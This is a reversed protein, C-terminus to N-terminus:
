TTISVEAAPRCFWTPAMTSSSGLAATPCNTALDTSTPTIWGSPCGSSPTTGPSRPRSGKVQPSLLLDQYWTMGLATSHSCSVRPYDGIPMSSLCDKLVELATEMVSSATVCDEYGDSSVLSGRIWRSVSKGSAEETLTEVPSCSVSLAHGAVPASPESGEVTKYSLQRCISTKVLGSVLKSIDEKEEASGRKAKSKGKGFLSKAVKTLLSRAASPPHLDPVMVCSSPPLREPTYGKTFFEHETIQDLTLREAPARKLIGMIMQKAAASLCAPLTYKVQKICRYTEKLDATEFPPTGCLLTYWKGLKLDRHIIGRTHLYKLGSIIQRLYYRVEPELLTHRAKWIHALSKRSCLELLIYINEADEFHHSFRVVHQHQLQRHLAIENVIKERQHPKAVRSHPVVKVAYTTGTSAETMEYCRAFGGKGLTRGRSYSRGTLPDIVLKGPAPPEARGLLEGGAAAEM